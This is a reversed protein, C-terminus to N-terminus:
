YVSSVVGVVAVPSLGGGHSCGAVGSFGNKTSEGLLCKRTDDTDWCVCGDLKKDVVQLGVGGANWRLEATSCQAV